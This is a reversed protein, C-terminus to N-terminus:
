HKIEPFKIVIGSAVENLFHIYPAGIVGANMMTEKLEQSNMFKKANEFSDWTFLLFIDNPKGEPCFIQFTKEGGKRRVDIFDDFAQKWNQYDKVQHFVHVYNQNSEKDM